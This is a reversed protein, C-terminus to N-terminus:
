AQRRAVVTVVWRWGPSEYRCTECRLWLRGDAAHITADHGRWACWAQRWVVILRRLTM